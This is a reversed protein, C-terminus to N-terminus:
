ERPGPGVTGEATVRFWYRKGSTLAELTASSKHSNAAFRWGPM